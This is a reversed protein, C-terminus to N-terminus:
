KIPARITIINNSFCIANAEFKGIWIPLIRTGGSEDLFIISETLSTAISYIKVELERSNGPEKTMKAKIM